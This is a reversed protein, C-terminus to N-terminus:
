SQGEGEDESIMVDRAQKWVLKWRERSPKGPRWNRIYYDWMEEEDIEPLPENDNWLFLRAFTCALIDNTAAYKHVEYVVRTDIGLLDLVANATKRSTSRTLVDKIAIPEFQWYGRAPGNNGQWRHEWNSEQGAIALLMFESMDVAKDRGDVDRWVNKAFKGDIEDLFRLGPLMICNYFTVINM